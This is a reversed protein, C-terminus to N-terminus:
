GHTHKCAYVWVACELPQVALKGKARLQNVRMVDRAKPRQWSVAQIELLQTHTHARACHSTYDNRDEYLRMVDRAKPRQWSVAKTRASHPTRISYDQLKKTYWKGNQIRAARWYLHHFLSGFAFRELGNSSVLM